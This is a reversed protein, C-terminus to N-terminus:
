PAAMRIVIEPQAITLQRILKHRVGFPHAKSVKFEQRDVFMRKVATSVVLRGAEVRRGAAKTRSVVETIEDIRGMRRAKVDNEVPHRAMERGIFKAERLKVAGVEILVAVRALAIM